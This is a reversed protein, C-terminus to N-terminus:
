DLDLFSINWRYNMDKDSIMKIIFPNPHKTKLFLLNKFLKNYKDNPKVWVRIFATDPYKNLLYDNLCALVVKESMNNNSSFELRNIYIIRQGKYKSIGYICTALLNNNNDKVGLCLLQKYDLKWFLQKDSFLISFENDIKNWILSNNSIPEVYLKKTKFCKLFCKQINLFVSFISQLTKKNPLITQLFSKANNILLYNNMICITNWSMKKFGPYSTRYNPFGILVDCDTNTRIYSEAFKMLKGWIGKGQYEPLVGSECSQFAKLIEGNIKYTCPQFCNIGVLRNDLYAGFILSNGLPNDYHKKQWYTKVQGEKDGFVISHVYCQDDFTDKNLLKLELDM